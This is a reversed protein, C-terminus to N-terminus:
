STVIKSLSPAGGDAAQPTAPPGSRSKRRCPHLKCERFYRARRHLISIPPRLFDHFFTPKFSERAIPFTITLGRLGSITKTAASPCGKTRIRLASHEAVVSPPLVQSLTEVLHSYPAISMANIRPIGVNTQTATPFAVYAHLEGARVPCRKYRDVTAPRGQGLRAAMPQASCEASRMRVLPHRACGCFVIDPNRPNVIVKGIARSDKLGVNKWSKGADV